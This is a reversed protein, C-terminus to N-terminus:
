HNDKSSEIYNRLLKSYGGSGHQLARSVRSLTVTSIGTEECVQTYTKGEMLLKASRIRQDMQEIEKVTCLDYLLTAIEEKDNLSALLEYLLHHDGSKSQISLVIGGGFISSMIICWCKLKTFHKKFYNSVINIAKLKQKQANQM